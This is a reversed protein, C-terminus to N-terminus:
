EARRTTKGATPVDSEIGRGAAVHTRLMGAENKGRKSGGMLVAGESPKAPTGASAADHRYPPPPRDTISGRWGHSPVGRTPRRGDCGQTAPPTHGADMGAGRPRVIRSPTM